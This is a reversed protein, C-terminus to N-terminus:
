TFDLIAEGLQTVVCEHLWTRALCFNLHNHRECRKIKRMEFTQVALLKVKRVTITNGHPHFSGSVGLRVFKDKMLM